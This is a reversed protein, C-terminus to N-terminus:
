TNKTRKDNEAGLECFKIAEERKWARALIFEVPQCDADFIAQGDDGLVTAILRYLTKVSGKDEVAVKHAYEPDSAFGMIESWDFNGFREWMEAFTHFEEEWEELEDDDAGWWTSSWKGNEKKLAEFMVGSESINDRRITIEVKM